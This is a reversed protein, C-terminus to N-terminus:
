ARLRRPASPSIRTALPKGPLAGFTVTQSGKAISFSQPVDTAANYNSDGAQSATITCSGVGTLHVTSGAVGCNDSATFSVPLSSSATAGITFDPDGFSHGSLAGFTISQDAQSVTLSATGSSAIYSSDGAFTAAIGSPYSFATAFAWSKL